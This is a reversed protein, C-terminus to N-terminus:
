KFIHRIVLMGGGVGLLLIGAAPERINDSLIKNLNSFEDAIRYNMKWEALM